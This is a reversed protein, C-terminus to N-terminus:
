LNSTIPFKSKKLWGKSKSMPWICLASPVKNDFSKFFVKRYNIKFQLTPADRDPRLDHRVINNGAEDEVAFYWYDYDDCREIDSTDWSVTMSYDKGMSASWSNEDTYAVPPANGSLAERHLRRGVFDLGSYRQYDGITRTGGLGFQQLRGAALESLRNASHHSRLWWDKYDEWHRPRRGYDAWVTPVFHNFLDYGLTFSRLTLASDIESWYLAPDYKCETCHSGTTFFFNDSMMRAPTVRTVGKMPAAWCSPFAALFAQPQLRYSVSPIEMEGNAPNFKNPCNTVIPKPSGTARLAEVLTSDWGEAFRSGADVQLTHDESNYMSQSVSRAWGHGKSEVVSFRQVSVEPRNLEAPTDEDQQLVIGFRLGAKDSAKAICDMVTPVTDFGKYSVLQVFISM